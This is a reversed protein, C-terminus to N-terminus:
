GPGLQSFHLELAEPQPGSGACEPNRSWREVLQAVSAMASLKPVLETYIYIHPSAPLTYPYILALIQCKCENDIYIYMYVSSTGQVYVYICFM